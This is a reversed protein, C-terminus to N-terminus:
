FLLRAARVLQDAVQVLKLNEDMAMKRLLRYAEDESLNKRKMLLGKAREITKRDALQTQANELEAPLAQLEEFRPFAHRHRHRGAATGPRTAVPEGGAANAFGIVKAKSAQAQLIFSSFDPPNIPHRVSGPVKGGRASVM